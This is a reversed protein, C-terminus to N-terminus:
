RPGGHREPPPLRLCELEVLPELGIVRLGVPLVVLGDVLLQHQRRHFGEESLQLLLEALPPDEPGVPVDAEALVLGRVLRVEGGGQGPAAVDGERRLAETGPGAIVPEHGVLQLAKPSGAQYHMLALNYLVDRHYPNLASAAEFLKIADNVQQARAATVAAQM